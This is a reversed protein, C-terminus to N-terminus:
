PGGAEGCRLGEFPPAWGFRLGLVELKFLTLEGEGRFCTQGSLCNNGANGRKGDVSSLCSLCFFATFKLTRVNHVKIRNAPYKVISAKPCIYKIANTVTTWIITYLSTM